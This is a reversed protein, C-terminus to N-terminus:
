TSLNVKNLLHLPRCYHFEIAEKMSIRSEPCNGLERRFAIFAKVPTYM